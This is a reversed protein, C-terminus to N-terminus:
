RIGGYNETISDMMIDYEEWKKRLNTENEKNTNQDDSQSPNETVVRYDETSWVKVKNEITKKKNKSNTNKQTRLPDEENELM